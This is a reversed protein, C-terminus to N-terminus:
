YQCFMNISKIIHRCIKIIWVERLFFLYPMQSTHNKILIIIIKEKQRIEQRWWCMMWCWCCCCRLSRLPIPLMSFALMSVGTSREVGQSETLPIFSLNQHLWLKKTIEMQIDAATVAEVLKLGGCRLADDWGFDSFCFLNFWLYSFNRKTKLQKMFIHSELINNQEAAAPSHCDNCAWRLSRPRPATVPLPGFNNNIYKIKILSPVINKLWETYNAAVNAPRNISSTSWKSICRRGVSM